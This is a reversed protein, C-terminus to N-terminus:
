GHAFPAISASRKIRLPIRVVFRTPWTETSEVDIDGGHCRSALRCFYLGLGLHADHRREGRAYKAFLRERAEKSIAKGTNAVSLELFGAHARAQIAVRGGEDAHRIANELLNELV